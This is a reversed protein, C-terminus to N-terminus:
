LSCFQEDVGGGDAILRTVRWLLLLPLSSRPLGYLASMGHGVSQRDDGDVAHSM